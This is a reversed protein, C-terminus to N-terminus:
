PGTLPVQGHEHAEPDATEAGAFDRSQAHAIDLHSAPVDRETNVALAIAYARDRELSSVRLRDHRRTPIQMGPRALPGRGAM